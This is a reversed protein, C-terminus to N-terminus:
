VSGMEYSKAQKKTTEKEIEIKTDIQTQRMEMMMIIDITMMLSFYKNIPIFM